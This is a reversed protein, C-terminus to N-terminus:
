GLRRLIMLQGPFESLTGYRVDEGTRPAQLIRDGGLYIAVHHPAGAGPYTFFVLDGPQRDVWAVPRGYHIQDGTYHPLRLHGGSAVYAAYLVLGSCDFGGGTPGTFSGGGWVYPAGIQDGAAAIFAGPFGPPLAAPV